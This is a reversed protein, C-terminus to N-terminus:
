AFGIKDNRVGYESAEAYSYPTFCDGRTTLTSIAERQECHCTQIYDNQLPKM